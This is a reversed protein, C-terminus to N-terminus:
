DLRKRFKFSALSLIGVGWAFEVMRGGLWVHRDYLCTRRSASM